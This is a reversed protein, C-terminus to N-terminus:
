RSATASNLGERLTFDWTKGDASVRWTSVMQPKIALKSDVAFLTDYIMYGFNRAMSDSGLMPDLTKVDGSPRVKLVSQAAAPLAALCLAAAAALWPMRHTKM